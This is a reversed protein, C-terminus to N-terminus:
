QGRSNELKSDESVHHKTPPHITGLMEFYWTPKMKLSLLDMYQMWADTFEIWPSILRSSLPLVCSQFTLFWKGRSVADCQLRNSNQVADIPLLRLNQMRFDKYNSGCSQWVEHLNVSKLPNICYVSGWKTFRFPAYAIHQCSRSMLSQWLWPEMRILEEQPGTSTM